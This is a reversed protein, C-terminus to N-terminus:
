GKGSAKVSESGSSNDLRKSASQHKRGWQVNWRVSFVCLRNTAQLYSTRKYGALRNLNESEVKYENSFPNMAGLMFFLNKYQKTVVIFYASEGGNLTEGWFNNYNTTFQAGISWGWHSVEAYVNWYPNNYTHTYDNGHMIYRNFGFHASASVWDKWNNVGAHAEHSFVHANKHNAFSTIINEGDRYKYEMIPNPSYKYASRLYGYFVGKSLEYQVQSRYTTYNELNANGESAQVNDIYQRVTSLQSISPTNGYTSFNLRFTSSRSPRYRLNFKPRVFFSSNSVEATKNFYQTVGLGATFDVKEGLRRWYEGFAYINSWSSNSMQGSEPYKSNSWSGTYKVGGTFRSKEWLKEYDGEAVFHYNMGKINTHIDASFDPALEDNEFLQQETYTRESSSPTITGVVNFMILQDKKLNRQYYLDLSSNISLSSNLDKMKFREGTDSNTLVGMYDNHLFNDYYMRAQVNLMQKDPDTFNYNLATWNRFQTADALEGEEVREYTSGDARTYYETNDRWQGLDWRASFNNTLSFESKKNNLKLNNNFDTYGKNLGQTLNTYYSGGSTPNKVIFDIVVETEGYRLSPNDHYEVRVVTRPDITQIENQDVARGNIRLSINGSSALKISQDVPSVIVSPLNMKRLLDTGNASSKVQEAQPIYLKRDAKNIVPTAKVEIEGLEKTLSDAPTQAYACLSIALCLAGILMSKM